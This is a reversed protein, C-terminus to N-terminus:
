SGSWVRLSSRAFSIPIMGAVRSSIMFLGAILNTEMAALLAACKSNASAARRAPLFTMHSFGM